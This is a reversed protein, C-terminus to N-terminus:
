PSGVRVRRAVAVIGTAALVVLAPEAAIRFRQNGYTLITTLSVLAFTAALPWVRQRRRVLVVTGVAACPLLAWYMRMGLTQWRPKRWELAEFAVERKPSYAGFTRLWRVAMVGPVERLHDRAYELGDDRHSAAVTAENGAALESQLLGEFCGRSYRWTGRLPGSYTEPCNAGDFIFSANTSVPVFADFRVYNRVTWPAVVVAVGGVAVATLALRRRPDGARRVAALPLVLLPVLLLAEARTLAAAGVAAGLALFRLGSPADLARYALVLVAAVLFAYLTEPMLVADSQFLMPYVAAVAAAALGAPWGAVRAGLLGILVVTGAGVFCMALRQADLSRGGARAVLSLLAPFLPPYEATPRIAPPRALLRDYPRIYGRGDALNNALLHYAGADTPPVVKVDPAALLAFAVRVALAALAILVLAAASTRLRRPM